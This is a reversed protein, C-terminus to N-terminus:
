NKQIYYNEGVGFVRKSDPYFYFFKKEVLGNNFRLEITHGMLEYTGAKELSSYLTVSNTTSGVTSEYTFQNGLFSLNKASIVTSSGGLPVNSLGSISKYLGELTENNSAALAKWWTGEKWTDEDGKNWKITFQNNDKKWTGWENPESKKSQEVNFKDSNIDLNKYVGGDMFLLYPVYNIEIGFGYTYELHIYIGDTGPIGSITNVSQPAVDKNCAASICFIVVSVVISMLPKM